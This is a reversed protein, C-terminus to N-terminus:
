SFFLRHNFPSNPLYLIRDVHIFDLGLIHVIKIRSAELYLQDAGEFSIKDVYLCSLDSCAFGVAISQIVKTCAAASVSPAMMGDKM